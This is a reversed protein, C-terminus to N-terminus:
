SINEKIKQANTEFDKKDASITQPNPFIWIHAHPVEEGVIKSLIWDTNFAKRQAQAIKHCVAFYDSINPFAQRSAPLDWVWRFHKKPIVLTHGASEPDISLFALFHEGEYIKHAPM